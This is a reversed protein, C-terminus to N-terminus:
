GESDTENKQFDPKEKRFLSEIGLWASCTFDGLEFAADELISKYDSPGRKGASYRCGEIYAEIIKM